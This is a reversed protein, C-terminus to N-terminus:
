WLLLFPPLFSVYVNVLQQKISAQQQQRHPFPREQTEVPASDQTRCVRCLYSLIVRTCTAAHLFSRGRTLTQERRVREPYKNHLLHAIEATKIRHIISHIDDGHKNLSPLSIDDLARHHQQLRLLLSLMLFLDDSLVQSRRASGVQQMDQMESQLSRHNPPDRSYLSQPSLCHRDYRNSVLPLFQSEVLYVTFKLPM